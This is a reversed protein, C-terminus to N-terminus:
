KTWTTLKEREKAPKYLRKNESKKGIEFMTAKTGTVVSKVETKPTKYINKLRYKEDRDMFEFWKTYVVKKVKVKHEVEGNWPYDGQCGSFTGIM